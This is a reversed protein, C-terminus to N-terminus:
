KKLTKKINKAVLRMITFAISVIGLMVIFILWVCWFICFTSIPIFLIDGAVNSLNVDDWMNERYVLRISLVLAIALSLYTISCGRQKIDMLSLTFSEAREIHSIIAHRM